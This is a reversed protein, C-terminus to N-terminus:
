LRPRPHVLACRRLCEGVRPSRCPASGPSALSSPRSRPTVSNIKEYNLVSEEKVRTGDGAPLLFCFARRGRSSPGVDNKEGYATTPPMGFHSLFKGLSFQRLQFSLTINPLLNKITHLLYLGAPPSSRYDFGGRLNHTDAHLTTKRLRLKSRHQTHRLSGDPAACVMRRM